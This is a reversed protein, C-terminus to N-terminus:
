PSPVDLMSPDSMSIVDDAAEISAVLREAPSSIRSDAAVVIATSPPVVSPRPMVPPSLLMRVCPPSVTRVLRSANSSMTAVEAPAILPSAMAAPRLRASVATSAMSKPAMVTPPVVVRVLLPPATPTSASLAAPGIV